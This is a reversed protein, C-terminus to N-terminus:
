NDSRASWACLLGTSQALACVKHTWLYFAGEKKKGEIPDLSDADQARRWGM